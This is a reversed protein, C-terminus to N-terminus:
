NVSRIQDAKCPKCDIVTAPAICINVSGETACPIAACKAAFSTGPHTAPSRSRDRQIRRRAPGLPQSM